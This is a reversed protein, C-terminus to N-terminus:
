GSSNALVEILQKVNTNIDFKNSFTQSANEKMEEKVRSSTCLWSDIMARTGDITDPEVVGANSSEIERWINVKNSILVPTGCALAEAVAIGFNEQHSPLIFAESAYFAGWKANGELMGPFIVSSKGNSHSAMQAISKGYDTDLGPGAVVLSYNELAKDIFAEVLMEVGKKPHIRGLFLLFPKGKLEPVESHFSEKMEISEPPPPQIGYGVNIERKPRYGRFTKRALRLEEETTFLVGSARNLVKNEILKWYIKNRIAKLRREASEQFYPDLMGHPMVFWPQNERKRMAKEVAHSSYLWIGHIIVADYQELNQNLWPMLRPSYRWPTKAPGLAHIKFSDHILYASDPEDLCVVENIVGLPMMAQISNRIGQCPGGSQPDMSDIVRLIKM